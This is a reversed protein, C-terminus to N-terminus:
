SKLLQICWNGQDYYSSLIKVNPLTLCSNELEGDEYVHYYRLFTGKEECNRKLKWPVLLDKHKFQTRNTHIPLSITEEFKLGEAPLTDDEKTEPKIYNSKKNENYQDKAWVYILAKGGPRLVRVIERIAQIRREETALHHIVAICICADAFDDKFPLSLCDCVLSEFGRDKCVDTLGFSRDCGVNFIDKNIGLYKGNGCGVDVLISGEVLSDVFKLINPWPKHRTDSFHDAIREYVDHVHTQELRAAIKEDNLSLDQENSFTDCKSSYKCNCKGKRLKRFTYSVRVGRVSLTCRGNNKIVDFKRPTIGHTWSYRSEESMILLSRRPLNVCYHDGNDNKFDMVIPSALSLSIIPDIFASHTDVHGPIGQGPLYQNVTLQDPIFDRFKNCKEGLREWLFDCEKPIKEMLPCSADVNNTDYRFEFGFHKVQRNKMTASENFDQIGILLAEEELSIFDELIILGPPSCGWKREDNIFPLSSVFGLFVPKDNQAIQLTGNSSNFCSSAEEISQFCLFCYSKGPPMFIDTIEGYKAFSSLLKEESLGNVLGANCIAIIKTAETSVAIGDRLLTNYHKKLKKELKKM